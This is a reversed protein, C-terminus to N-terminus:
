LVARIIRMSYELYVRVHDKTDVTCGDDIKNNLVRLYVTEINREKTKPCGRSFYITQLNEDYELLINTPGQVVRRNGRKDVVMVAYGVWINIGPVGDFKTNLTITRPQTFNSGRELVDGVVASVDRSVSSAEMAMSATPHNKGQRKRSRELDGESVVGSRTTPAVAALQRLSRNYAAVDENGPYWTSCEQESLVRRVIVEDIPSPLLMAPGQVMRIAGTKRNMVYRADGAPVAVAFHKDKGDYRVLSHEER